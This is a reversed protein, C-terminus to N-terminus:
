ATRQVGVKEAAYYVPATLLRHQLDNGTPKGLVDSSGVFDLYDGVVQFTM